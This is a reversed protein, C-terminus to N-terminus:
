GRGYLGVLEASELVHGEMAREMEDRGAGEALDLKDDLAFIRFVYRHEGSPPCPGGYDKRKFDNTGQVGPVSNEGIGSSVPIDFVIWHDFTGGPADPDDVILALSGADEPIDEIDLAPNINEGDCTFMVPIRGNHKFSPSTLKMGRVERM